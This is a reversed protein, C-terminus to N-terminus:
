FYHLYFSQLHCVNRQKIYQSSFALYFFSVENACQFCRKPKNRRLIKKQIEKLSRHEPSVNSFSIVVLLTRVLLVGIFRLCKRYTDLLQEVTSILINVNKEAAYSLLCFCNIIVLISNVLMLYNEFIHLKLRCHHSLFFWQPFETIFSLLKM